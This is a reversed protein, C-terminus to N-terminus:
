LFVGTTHETNRSGRKREKGKGEEAKIRRKASCSRNRVDIIGLLMQLLVGQL